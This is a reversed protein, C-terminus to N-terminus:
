AKGLLIRRREKDDRSATKDYRPKENKSSAAKRGAICVIYVIQM